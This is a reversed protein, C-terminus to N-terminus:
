RKKQKAQKELSMVYSIVKAVEDYHEAPIEQDIDVDKYLARALPPSEVIPVDNEKAIGKIRQAMHDVGKATCIPPRGGEEFEYKLAIAYHEPNTIVVTAQPVSQSVRAQSKERRIQALKQKIEPSGETQKYEDKVEQKTMKLNTYHDYKQYAFDVAAIFAMSVTVLILIDFIMTKLQNLIGGLSLEQYQTLEKVDALIVQYVLIGVITIKVIGKLFEFFNKMYFIKKFGKMPSLKTIDPKMQEDSFIFGGYQAFTSGLTAIVAVVFIPSIYILGKKIIAPLLIGLTGPSM